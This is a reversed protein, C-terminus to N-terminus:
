DGTMGYTDNALLRRLWRGQDPSDGIVPGLRELLVQQREPLGAFGVTLLADNGSRQLSFHFQPVPGTAGPQTDDVFRLRDRDPEFDTIRDRGGLEDARWCFVDAGAGGGLTDNGRGGALYDNGPGGDIRDNGDNGYLYDNDRGGALRDDGNGGFLTDIGDEGFLRDNGDDGDIRDNGAQGRLTDPGPSGHLRGGAPMAPLRDATDQDARAAPLWDQHTSHM